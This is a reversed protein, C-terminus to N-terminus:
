SMLRIKARSEDIEDGKRYSGNFNTSFSNLFDWLVLCKNKLYKATLIWRNHM